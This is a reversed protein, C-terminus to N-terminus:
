NYPNRSYSAADVFAEESYRVSKKLANIASVAAACDKPLRSRELRRPVAAVGAACLPPRVESSKCLAM